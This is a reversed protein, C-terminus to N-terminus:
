GALNKVMRYNTFEVGDVVPRQERAVAFGCREFLPRATISVDSTLEIAGLSRARQENHDLLARAVGQRLHSPSVFLKDIHGDGDVDSFGAIQAGRVAVVTARGSLVANWADLNRRGPKAWAEVQESTYHAAAVQTIAGTFVALTAEADTSEYSRLHISVEDLGTM